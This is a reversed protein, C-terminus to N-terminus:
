DDAFIMTDIDKSSLTTCWGDDTREVIVTVARGTSAIGKVVYVKNGKPRKIRRNFNRQAWKTLTEKAM